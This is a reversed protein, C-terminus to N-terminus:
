TRGEDDVDALRWRHAALVDHPVPKGHVDCGRHTCRARYASGARRLEAVEHGHGCAPLYKSPLADAGLSRM